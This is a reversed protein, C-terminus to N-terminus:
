APVFDAEAGLHVEIGDGRFWCGGRAALVPPKEIESLGLVGSWYARCRDESGTPVSLQVHHLPGITFARAPAHDAATRTTM